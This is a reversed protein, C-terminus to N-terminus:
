IAYGMQRILQLRLRDIPESAPASLVESIRGSPAIAILGIGLRSAIATEDESFGRTDSRLDALYCREALVSYGHAQGAATNFPQRGAKVEIGILEVRGSFDGGIDRLGCVDVRGIQPGTNIKVDFCKFQRRAWRAITPYLDAERSSERVM